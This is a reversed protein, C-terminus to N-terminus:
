PGYGVYAGYATPPGSPHAPAARVPRPSPEGGPVCAPGALLVFALVATFLAPLSRRTGHPAM